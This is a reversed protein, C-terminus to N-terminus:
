PSTLLRYYRAGTARAAPDTLEVQNTDPRPALNTLTLWTAVALNTTHELTYKLDPMALFSLRAGANGPALALHVRLVSLPNQPDTGSLYEEWNSRGDHDPDANRDAADDSRLGHALEWADPMGDGDGDRLGFSLVAVRSTAAGYANTIIVQYVGTNTTQVNTLTLTANTANVIPNTQNFWWQYGLTATGTATVAFTVNTGVEASQSAPEATIIPPSLVLLPLYSTARGSPSAANFVAIRYNGSDGYQVNTLTFTCNSEYLVKVLNTVLGKRLQYTFPPPYGSISISFSVDTGALNTKGTPSQTITLAVLPILRVPASM